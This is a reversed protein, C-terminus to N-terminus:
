INFESIACGHVHWKAPWEETSDRHVNRSPIKPNVAVTEWM